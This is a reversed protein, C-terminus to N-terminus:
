LRRMMAAMASLGVFVIVCFELRIAFWACCLQTQSLWATLVEDPQTAVARSELRGHAVPALAVSGWVSCTASRARKRLGESSGPLARLATLDQPNLQGWASKLFSHKLRLMPLECLWM